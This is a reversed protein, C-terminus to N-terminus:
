LDGYGITCITCVIFYFRDWKPYAPIDAALTHYSLLFYSSLLGLVLWLLREAEAEWLKRVHDVSLEGAKKVADGTGDRAAARAQKTAKAAAAMVGEREESLKQEDASMCAWRERRDMGEWIEQLSRARGREDGDGALQNKRLKKLHKLQAESPVDIGVKIYGEPRSRKSLVQFREIIQNMTEEPMALLERIKLLLYDSETVHGDHSLDANHVFLTSLEVVSRVRAGAVDRIYIESMEDILRVVVTTGVFMYFIM